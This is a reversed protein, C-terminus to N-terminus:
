EVGAAVAIKELIYRLVDSSSAIPRGPRNPVTPLTYHPPEPRQLATLLRGITRQERAGLRFDVHPTFYRNRWVPDIRFEVKVLNVQEPLVGSAAMGPSEVVVVPTSGGTSVTEPETADARKAKSTKDTKGAAKGSSPDRLSGTVGGRAGTRKIAKAKTAM